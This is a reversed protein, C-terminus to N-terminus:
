NLHLGSLVCFCLCQFMLILILEVSVHSLWSKGSFSRNQSNWQQTSSLVRRLLSDLSSVGSQGLLVPLYYERQVHLRSPLDSLYRRSPTCFRAIRMMKGRQEYLSAKTSDPRVLSESRRWSSTSLSNLFTKCFSCFLSWSSRGARLM